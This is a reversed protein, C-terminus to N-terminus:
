QVAPKDDNFQDYQIRAYKPVLIQPLSPNSNITAKLCPSIVHLTPPRSSQESSSSTLDIDTMDVGEDVETDSFGDM